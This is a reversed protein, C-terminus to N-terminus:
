DNSTVKVNTGTSSLIVKNNKYIRATIISEDQSEAAIYTFGDKDM